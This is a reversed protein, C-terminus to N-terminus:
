TPSPSGVHDFFRRASNRTSTPVLSGNIATRPVASYIPPAIRAATFTHRRKREGEGCRESKRLRAASSARLQDGIDDLQLSLLAEKTREEVVLAGNSVGGRPEVVRGGGQPARRRSRSATGLDRREERPRRHEEDAVPVVGLGDGDARRREFRQHALRGDRGEDAGLALAPQERERLASVGGGVRVELKPRPM